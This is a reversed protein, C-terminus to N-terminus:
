LYSALVHFAEVTTVLVATGQQHLAALHALAVWNTDRDVTVTHDSFADGIGNLCLVVHVQDTNSINCGIPSQPGRPALGNREVTGSDFVGLCHCFCTQRDRSCKILKQRLSVNNNIARRFTNSRLIDFSISRTVDLENDVAAFFM